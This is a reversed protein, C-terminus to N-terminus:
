SLHNEEKKGKLLLRQEKQSLLPNEEVNVDKVPLHDMEELHQLLKEVKEEM